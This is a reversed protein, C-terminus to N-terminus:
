DSRWRASALGVAAAIAVMATFQYRPVNLSIAPYVLLSRIGPSLSLLHGRHRGKFLHLVAWCLAPIGLWFFTDFMLGRYIVAPM